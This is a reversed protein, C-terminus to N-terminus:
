ADIILDAKPRAVCALCCGAEPEFGPAEAYDVDGGKLAVECSGCNGACCGSEIAVDHAEALELLNAQAGTWDVVKNSKAFTVKIANAPAITPEPPTDSKVKSKVSAPGFAEAHISEEPVGWDILQDNMGSMMPPPGCMFFAYNNSPLYKQLVEVSVRGAEDCYSNDDAADPDSYCIVAHLNENQEVLRRIYAPRFHEKRNRVGYFLWAERGSKADAISRMMSIMPTIGVGGALMVAPKRANPDMWFNGSPAKVDVIDGEQLSDHFFNSVVGRYGDRALFRKITVRYYNPRPCDSLSYCRVVAKKQGPIPLRFTLFQGPKFGPLTLGDHPRLYFSCTDQAEEEKKDIVFKRFGGWGLRIQDNHARIAEAAAIRERMIQANARRVQREDFVRQTTSFIVLSLHWCALLVLPSALLITLLDM